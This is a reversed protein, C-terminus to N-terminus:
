RMVTKNQKVSNERIEFERKIYKNYYFSLEM